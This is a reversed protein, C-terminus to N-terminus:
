RSLPLRGRLDGAAVQLETREAASLGRPDFRYREHLRVLRALLPRAEPGLQGSIRIAWNGATESAHRGFGLEHLAAEFAYLESDRGPFLRERSTVPPSAASAARKGRTLRWALLIALAAALAYWGWGAEFEGRQSWRFGGWRLLDALAEWVPANREEVDFWAAPTTDIDQWRGDIWARTWAHAHRARVVFAAELPSYEMVAFGTAYRAPIGAARLLLVSAAAFYECHGSRSREIFDALATSGARQRPEQWTSYAFTSFHEMVRRSAEAPPLGELSLARALQEFATREAAPLDLDRAGPVAYSVDDAAAVAATYHIWDGSAEAQVAGFRNRQLRGFPADEIRLTNAPLSLLAKERELRTAIRVRLEPQGPAFEWGAGDGSPAVGDLPADRAMWTTGVYQDFSARHLLRLRSQEERPAYVRLVIADLLKLRGVSGIDTTSRYPDGAMGSLHWDSIWAELQAQMQTLARQGLYGIGVAVAFMSLWAIVSGHRPRGAFLIWAAFAAIVAFYARGNQEALGAALLVVILYGPAVDIAPVDLDPEREKAKRLYRFLATLPIRQNSGFRQALLIPAIALPLWQFAALFGHSIGRNAALVGVLAVFAVTSLDAIWAYDRDSFGFRLRTRLPFELALALLAGILVNGTQWGWFILAVSVSLPPLPRTSV